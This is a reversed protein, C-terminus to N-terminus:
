FEVSVSGVITFPDGPELGSSRRNNSAVIHDTDFLNRANLAFRWNDRRYSIGANVLFYSDLEFSNDLDGERDGVFNFGLGFGLGELDGEQIEYTTWLSASHEPANFLRNGESFTNDESVTADIYAYSAIINWGPLIEGIVDLEVGQSRQEGTAVSSFLDLPDPTAVNQRTIDFYTLTALLSGELLEAKVGIDFGEGEEPPLPDGASTTATGPTFSQSYSAFLSLFEVPQYVIGIRPTWANDNQDTESGVPVFANPGNVTTQDVTDYRVGALLILNDLLDVQDQIYIGVRDTQIDINRFIPQIDPDLGDFQGDVPNFIDFPQIDSIRTFENSDTHNYDVGFLLTHQISGTAFEGVVNTQLSYNDADNDQSGLFRFLTGTDEDFDIPITGVNSVNRDSYRFANRIKWRDSFRHEFNYGVSTFETNVLNDPDDLSRDFPLDVVEDGSSPLGNDLPAEDDTHEFQLTLDTRDSIRWSLVPAVFFREFDQEFDRFSDESRYLANLRYRVRGDSSLPGSFDIQPRFLSQNGAQLRAEYFPEALPQKTVLNIVGGPQIEGYLISAPGRLVEIRELNATESLNEEFGGFQRFGDLLVPTNDFGRINFNRTVNSLTGAETVGSVNTLAEDLEIVQQDELVQRPIVQISAPTDLIPTDTRTASSANPAFYDDEQEGTVTIQIADDPPQATPDGPTASVTFRDSTASVNVAPPADTGTIAIRVQGNPLNTVNVLAIDEAPASSFFEDGAPLRLVADPIDTIAANGAVSTETVSLEGNASLQLTLGDATAEIQVDTIEVPSAQATLQENIPILGPDAENTARLSYATEGAVAPPLAMLLAGTLSMLPLSYFGKVM